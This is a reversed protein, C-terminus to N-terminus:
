CGVVAVVEMSGGFVGWGKRSFSGGDGKMSIYCVNTFGAVCQTCGYHRSPHQARPHAM